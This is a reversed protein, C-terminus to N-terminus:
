GAAGLTRSPEGYGLMKAFKSFNSTRYRIRGAVVAESVLHKEALVRIDSTSLFALSGLADIAAEPILAKSALADAEAEAENLDGRVDFDDHFFSPSDPQGLHRWAHVCEHLLCHWFNDLRDHRLTMGIVPTGDELLMAAGDLYTSRLHKAIVLHVGVSNLKEKALTPGNPFRSFHAISSLFEEDILEKRYKNPLEQAIALARVRLCWAYLSAMDTKANAYSQSNQRCLAASQFERARGQECFWNWAEEEYAAKPDTYDGCWGLKIMEAIPYSGIDPADNLDVSREHVLSELPIGLHTHLARVMRLTLDRKGTMIESVRADSGLYPRLDRLTLGAADLRHKIAEIPDPPPIEVNKQEWGWVLDSAIQLKEYEESGPAADILADVLSIMGEYDDRSQIPRIKLEM